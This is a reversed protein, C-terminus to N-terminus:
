LAPAAAQNIWPVGYSLIDYESLHLYSFTLGPRASGSRWARRSGSGATAPSVRTRSMTTMPGGRQAAAGRGASEPLPQNVDVTARRTLDSSFWRAAASHSDRPM